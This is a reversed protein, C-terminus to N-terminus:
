RFLQLFFMCEKERTQHVYVFLYKNRLIYYVHYVSYYVPQHSIICQNTNTVASDQKRTVFKEYKVGALTNDERYRMDMQMTEM